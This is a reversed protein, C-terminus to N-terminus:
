KKSRVPPIRDWERSHKFLVTDPLLSFDQYDPIPDPLPVYKPKTSPQRKGNVINHVTAQCVGFERAIQANTLGMSKRILIQAMVENKTRPLM